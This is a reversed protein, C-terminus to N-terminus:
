STADYSSSAQLSNFTYEVSHMNDCLVSTWQRYEERMIRWSYKGVNPIRQRCFQVALPRTPVVHSACSTLLGRCASARSSPGRCPVRSTSGPCGRHDRVKQRVPTLHENQLYLENLNTLNAIGAPVDGSMQNNYLDLYRLRFLKGITEPIPGTILNDQLRLDQLVTMDGIEDPLPEDLRNEYMHFDAIKVLRGVETPVGGTLSNRQLMLYRLETLNYFFGSPLSGNLQNEAAHLVQLNSLQGLQVPISSTLNNHSLDLMKLDVLQGLESPIPGEFQNYQLTLETLRMPYGLPCPDDIGCGVGKAPGGSNLTGLETPLAGVISNSALSIVEINNWRGIETPISGGIANWALDVYTINELDGLEPISLNGSLGNRRLNLSTIRGAFCGQGLGRTQILFDMQPGEGIIDDLYRECPDIFGVGFWRKDPDCPDNAKNQASTGSTTNWNRNNVWNAGDLEEYLRILAM